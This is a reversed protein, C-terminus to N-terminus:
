NIYKNYGNIYQLIKLARREISHKRKVLKMGKQSIENFYNDDTLLKNIEDTDKKTVFLGPLERDYFSSGETLPISGNCLANFVREHSGHSYNVNSCLSIKARANLSPIEDFPVEGKILIKKALTHNEWGAGYATVMLGMQIAFNLLDYKKQARLFADMGYLLVCIFDRSFQEVPYHKDEAITKMGEWLSKNTDDSILLDIIDNLFLIFEKDSIRLFKNRYLATRNVLSDFNREPLGFASSTFLVDIDREMNEACLKNPVAPHPLFAGANSPCKLINTTFDDFSEDVYLDIRNKMKVSLREVHHIPNDVIYWVVIQKDKNGPIHRYLYANDAVGWGNMAFIVDIAENAHPWSSERVLDWFFVRNNYQTFCKGLMYAWHRLVDYQSQGLLVAINM